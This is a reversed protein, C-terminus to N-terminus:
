KFIYAGYLCATRSSGLAQIVLDQVQVLEQSAKDFGSLIVQSDSIFKGGFDTAADVADISEM